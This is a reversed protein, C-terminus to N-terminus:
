IQHVFKLNEPSIGSQHIDFAVFATPLHQKKAVFFGLHKQM